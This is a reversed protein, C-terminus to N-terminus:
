VFDERPSNRFRFYLIMCVGILTVIIFGMTFHIVLLILKPNRQDNLIVCNADDRICPFLDGKHYDEGSRFFIQVFNQKCVKAKVFLKYYDPESSSNDSEVKVITCNIRPLNMLKHNEVALFGLIIVLVVGSLLVTATLFRNLKTATSTM